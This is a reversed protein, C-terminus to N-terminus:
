INDEKYKTYRLPFTKLELNQQRLYNRLVEEIGISFISNWQYLRPLKFYIDMTPKTGMVIQDNCVNETNFPFDEHFEKEPVYITNHNLYQLPRQQNYKLTEIDTLIDFVELDNRAKVVLDTDAFENKFSHYTQYLASWQSVYRGGHCHTSQKFVSDLDTTTEVFKHPLTFNTWPSPGGAYIAVHGQTRSFMRLLSYWSSANGRFEGALILRIM